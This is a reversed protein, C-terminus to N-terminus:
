ESLTWVKHHGILKGNARGQEVLEELRNRATNVHCGVEDAIEKTGAPQHKELAELIAGEDYEADFRGKEDRETVGEHEPDAAM